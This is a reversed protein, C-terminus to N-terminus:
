RFLSCFLYGLRELLTNAPPFVEYVPLACVFAWFTFCYFLFVFIDTRAGGLAWQFGLFQQYPQCIDIHHCRSKLDFKYM